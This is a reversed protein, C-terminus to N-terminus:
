GCPGGIWTGGLKKCSDEDTRICDNGGQPNPILCAGKLGGSKAATKAHESLEALWEELDLARKPKQLPAIKEEGIEDAAKSSKKASRPKVKRQDTM